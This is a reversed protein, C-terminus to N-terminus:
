DEHRLVECIYDAMAKSDLRTKRYLSKMDGHPVFDKGLDFAHVKCNLGGKQLSMAISECIGSGSCTEEAVFVHGGCVSEILKGEDYHTVSNLILERVHINREELMRVTILAEEAFPGYTVLTVRDNESKQLAYIESPDGFFHSQTGCCSSGRPYRVAVPGTCDNVAWRLMARMEEFNAPCLVTMGPIQRLFGVDFVGHHTPGDEGVLGARDIAFVVHLGLLAVDQIIQDYARQLFTSYLAVVPVMGQKALGGAMSVAHEEAIGVDFLRKPFAERFKLLGTGGPMAATIACVRSNEAALEVMTEGFVDSYSKNSTTVSNGTVPDFKGIGHFRSPDEEAPQYGHGKKTRVHILVPSNFDRAVRLLDILEPLDHGDVPGLYTLGMNEFITTPLIFRKIRNKVRSTFNYFSKGGPVNKLLNRYILKLRLYDDTSRLRSLHKAMGGVNRDISMENDNLIIIMPEKSVAADNLGEYAMGGTAAGDGILAIVHYNKNQLTRARAMGLAISVSSSAHGAVFADSDSENPKPFGSIGGFQRLHEFDTQRGTLLKHVYSQHGVDFVLRDEMTNFVTEIAVTLEVAGLNSALHGGTQSVSSVLFSRIEDCLDARQQDNLRALDEHGNM